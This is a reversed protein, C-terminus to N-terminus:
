RKSAQENRPCSRDFSLFKQLCRVSLEVNVAKKNPKGPSQTKNGHRKDIAESCYVQDSENTTGTHHM